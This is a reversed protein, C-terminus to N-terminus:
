NGRQKVELWDVVLKVLRLFDGAEGVEELRLEAVEVASRRWQSLKELVYRRPFFAFFFVCRTM